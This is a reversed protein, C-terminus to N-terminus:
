NWPATPSTPTKPRSTPASALPIGAGSALAAAKTARTAALRTRAKASEASAPVDNKSRLHRDNQAIAADAVVIRAM